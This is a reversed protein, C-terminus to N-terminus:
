ELYTTPDSRHGLAVKNLNPFYKYL